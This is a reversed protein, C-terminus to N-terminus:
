RRNLKRRIASKLGRETAYGFLKLGPCSYSLGQQSRIEYGQYTGGSTSRYHTPVDEPRTCESPEYGHKYTM